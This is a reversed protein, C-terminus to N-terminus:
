DEDDVEPYREALRVLLRGIVPALLFAICIWALIWEWWELHFSM